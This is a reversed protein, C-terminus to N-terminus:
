YYAVGRTLDEDIGLSSAQNLGPHRSQASQTLGEPSESDLKLFSTNKLLAMTTLFTRQFKPFSSSELQSRPLDESRSRSTM